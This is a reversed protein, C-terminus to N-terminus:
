FLIRREAARIVSERRLVHSSGIRPRHIEPRANEIAYSEGPTTLGTQKPKAKQRNLEEFFASHFWTKDARMNSVKTVFAVLAIHKTKEPQQAVAHRMASAITLGGVFDRRKM